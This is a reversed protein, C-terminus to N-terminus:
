GRSRHHEIIQSTKWRGSGYQSIDPVNKINYKRGLLSLISQDHRHDYFDPYNGLDCENPSDTIIRYDEAYKLWENIFSIVFDNKRMLMYSALLQPQSLYPEEDLGMYVFTDRKTWRKNPHFDELEFLLLKEDTSDMLTVLEDIPKIFSIGSDSYFLIDDSNINELAKKIVYPKWLWYGAGRDQELIHKNKEKFSEDIDSYGYSFVEDFGGVSLGSQSNSKQSHHHTKHAYNVLYKKM